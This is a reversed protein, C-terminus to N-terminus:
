LFVFVSIGWKRLILNFFMIFQM